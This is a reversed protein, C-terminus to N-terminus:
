GERGVDGIPDHTSGRWDITVVEQPRSIGKLTVTRPDSFAFHAADNQLTRVSAVIEGGDALSAIRAAEHIGKGRYERGSRSAETNHVGIRVNPAFGHTRRHDALTRQIAVACAVAEGARNFAVFFGDGAHDVEEGGHDAFLSRLTQDHWRLLDLWADDGVAEVLNTSGVIDTFMFTRAARPEAAPVPSERAVLEDIRKVDPVAGLRDFVSRAAQLELLGGEVDGLAKIARALLTRAQATEYPAEIDGWHSVARRLTPAAEAPEDVSLLVAGRATHAAAHLAPMQFTAATADLEDAAGRATDIDGAELAIQVGVRLLRARSLRSTEEDLARKISAAAADAKGEALLLVSLGPQPDRGLESAQRFEDRAAGVEGRRLRLEGILYHAEAIHSVRNFQGLEEIARQLEEDAEPWAGRLVLIEARHLRCDGPFYSIAHREYWRNAADAWDEARRYDAIEACTGITNCYVVGTAKPDLEGSVAAVAAEDILVLGESLRGKEVLAMGHYVRGFAELNRDGFKEGLSLTRRALDGHPSRPRLSLM